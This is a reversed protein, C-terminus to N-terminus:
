QIMSRHVSLNINFRCKLIKRFDTLFITTENFYSLFLPYKVVHLGIYKKTMDREIRRLILFKESLIIYFILVYIKNKIVYNRFGHGKQSLTSFYQIVRSAGVVIRCMSMVQQIGLAILALKYYKINKSSIKAKGNCCHNCSRAEIYM